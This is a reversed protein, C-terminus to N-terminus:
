YTARRFIQEKKPMPRDFMGPRNAQSKFPIGAAQKFSATYYGMKDKLGIVNRDCKLGMGGNEDKDDYDMM